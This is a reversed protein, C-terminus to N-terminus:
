PDSLARIGEGRAAPGFRGIVIRVHVPVLIAMGVVSLVVEVTSPDPQLLIGEWGIGAGAAALVVLVVGAPLRTRLVFGTVVAVTASGAVIWADVTM